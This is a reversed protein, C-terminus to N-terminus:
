VKKEEKDTKDKGTKMQKVEEALKLSHGKREM